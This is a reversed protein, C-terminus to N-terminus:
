DGGKKKLEYNEYVYGDSKMQKGEEISDELKKTLEKLRAIVEKGYRNLTHGTMEDGKFDTTESLYKIHSKLEWFASAEHRYQDKSMSQSTEARIMHTRLM